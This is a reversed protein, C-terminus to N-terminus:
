EGSARQGDDFIISSGVTDVTLPLVRHVPDLAGEVQASLGPPGEFLFFGGGGAGLLKGGSAGMARVRDYLQDLAEGTIGDVLTRKIQWSADLLRGVTAHDGSELASRVEISQQALADLAARRSETSASQRTLIGTAKRTMGTYVLFYRSALESLAAADMQLPSVEVSEDAHFVIHNAGGYAAAYQDQKGIRQDLVEIEIRCAEEALQAADVTRGAFTHLAHLLGVTLTSSSGLGTGRSPIDAITTIEVGSTIGTLRMAERVLEHELQEFDDVIETKSYSVRVSDDFRRNVTVHIHRALGFSTVRGGDASDRYYAPLDTGGGCFSVRVPTRSIIMSAVVGPM